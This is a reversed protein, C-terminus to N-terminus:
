SINIKNKFESKGNDCQQDEKKEVLVVDQNRSWCREKIRREQENQKQEGIGLVVNETFQCPEGGLSVASVWILFRRTVQLIWKMEEDLLRCTTSASFSLYRQLRAYIKNIEQDDECFAIWIIINAQKLSNTNVRVRAPHSMPGM